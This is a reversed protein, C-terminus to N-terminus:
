YNNIKEWNAHECTFGDEKLTDAFAKKLKHTGDIKFVKM